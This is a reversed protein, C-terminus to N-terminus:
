TGTERWFSDFSYPASDQAPSKLSDWDKLIAKPAPRQLGMDEKSEELAQRMSQIRGGLQAASM